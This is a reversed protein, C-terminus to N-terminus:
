RERRSGSPPGPPPPRKYFKGEPATGPEDVPERPERGERGERPERPERVHTEPPAAERVPRATPPAGAPPDAAPPPAPMAPPPRRLPEAQPPAVPRANWPGPQRYSPPAAPPPPASPPPMAPPPIATPVGPSVPAPRYPASPPPGVSPRPQPPVVTHVPQGTATVGAPAVVTVGGGGGAEPQRVVMGPQTIPPAHMVVSPRTGLPAPVIVGPRSGPPPPVFAGSPGIPRPGGVGYIPRAVPIYVNPPPPVFVTGRPRWHGGVFVVIGDRNEYYPETWFFGPRPPVAWRGRIWVWDGDWHWYGGVWYMDEYPPPPIYEVQLPPPAYEVAVAPPETIPLDIEVSVGPPAYVRRGRYPAPPGVPAVPPGPEIYCAAAAVPLALLLRKM